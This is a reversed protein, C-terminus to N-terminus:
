YLAATRETAFEPMGLARGTRYITGFILQALPPKDSYLHQDFKINDVSRFLSNEVFFVGREGISQVTSLRGGPIGSIGADTQATFLAFLTIVALGLWLYIRPRKM